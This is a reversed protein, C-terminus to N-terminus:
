GDILAGFLVWQRGEFRQLQMQHIPFFRTPTTQVRIGPLLMPLDFDLNAAQRMINERSLDDGCQKLLHVLTQAATYGSVNFIDAPNGDAYYAKMWARWEQTVPDEAWQKDNPDKLYAASLIGQSKEFGAPQIVTAVSASVNTLIHLPRWGIDYVKRIAQAAFKPTSNDFFVDAGSGMLTVIQSDVTPDTAEYTAEAVIMRKAAEPGLGDKFGKAYDRGADDNQFLMAVKADPKHELLYKGYIRGEIQYSPQWGITWPFHEPDGWLTAGSAVFLQPVKKDNLYKHVAIGPATGLSQFIFAVQELEVLKRTQEVTKPPSYGDDLSLLTIKRGNVGGRENIMAFYALEAKGITSYASAGGSFPMTQGIRIETDTVGPADKKQAAAPSAAMALGMLMLMMWASSKLLRLRMGNDRTVLGVAM